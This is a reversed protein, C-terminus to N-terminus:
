SRDPPRPGAPRAHARRWELRALLPLTLACTTMVVFFAWELAGSGGDPQVGFLLEIWDPRIATLVLLIVSASGVGVEIWFRRRLLAM